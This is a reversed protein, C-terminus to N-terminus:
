IATPAQNKRRRAFRAGLLGMGLLTLTAPEPVVAFVGEAVGDTTTSFLPAGLTTPDFSRFVGDVVIELYFPVPAVFFSSGAATLAFPSFTLSFDGDDEPDGTTHGQSVGPVM